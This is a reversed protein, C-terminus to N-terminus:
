ENIYSNSLDLKISKDENIFFISIDLDSNPLYTGNPFSGFCYLNINVYTNNSKNIIDKILSKIAILKNIRHNNSEINPAINTLIHSITMSEIKELTEFMRRNLNTQKIEINNKNTFYINSM